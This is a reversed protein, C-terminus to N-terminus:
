RKMEFAIQMGDNGKKISSAFGGDEKSIYKVMEGDGLGGDNDMSVNQRIQEQTIRGNTSSEGCAAVCNKDTQAVYPNAQDVLTKDVVKAGDWFRLDQKTARIGGSIGGMIGGMAAGMLGTTFGAGLGQAFSAGGAWANAAGAVFGGAFGGALKASFGGM